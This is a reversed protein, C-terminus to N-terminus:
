PVEWAFPENDRGAREEFLSLAQADLEDRWRLDLVIGKPHDGYYPRTRDTLKVWGTEKTVQWQTGNNGGLVHHVHDGFNLMAPEFNMGIAQCLAEVTEKPRTALEEYRLGLKTGEFADYFQQTERMKDRWQDILTAASREPYKRLRSNLVARGDRQLFILIPRGGGRRVQNTQRKLWDVAKTSDIVWGRDTRRSLQEYLDPEPAVRFDGWIPCGPGCLKCVRKREPKRLDGLFRTKAAEGAYFADERSGLILGLLTSGSHGAGAIFVTSHNARM